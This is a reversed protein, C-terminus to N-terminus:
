ESRREKPLDSRALLALFIGFIGLFFGLCGYVNIRSKNETKNQMIAISILSGAVGWIAIEIKLSFYNDDM